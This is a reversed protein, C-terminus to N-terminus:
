KVVRFRLHTVSPSEIVRTKELAVQDPGVHDFMRRGGGLLIAVLHIQIEDLLRASLCQQVLNAGGAVSVDLIESDEGSKGGAMGHRERWSALGYVWEHLREGSEGLPQEVSDNPGTIFGDLSVSMDCVVKPM